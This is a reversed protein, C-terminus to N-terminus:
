HASEQQSQQERRKRKSELYEQRSTMGTERQRNGYLEEAFQLTAKARALSLAFAALEKAEPTPQQPQIVKAKWTQSQQEVIDLIVAKHGGPLYDKVRNKLSAFNRGERNRVVLGPNALYVDIAVRDKFPAARYSDKLSETYRGTRDGFGRGNGLAKKDKLLAM